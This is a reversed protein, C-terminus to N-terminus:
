VDPREGFEPRETRTRKLEWFGDMAALTEMADWVELSQEV